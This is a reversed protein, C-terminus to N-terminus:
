IHSKLKKERNSKFVEVVDNKLTLLQINNEMALDIVTDNFNLSGLYVKIDKDKDDQFNKIYDEKINKLTEFHKERPTTKIEILAITRGNELVLDFEKKNKKTKLKTYIKNYQINELKLNERLSVFFSYELSDGLSNGIGGIEKSMDKIQQDTKAQAERLEKYEKESQKKYEKSEKSLDELIKEIRDLRESM